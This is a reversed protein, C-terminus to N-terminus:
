NNLVLQDQDRTNFTVRKLEDELEMDQSTNDFKLGTLLLMLLPAFTLTGIFRGPVLVILLMILLPYFLKKNDLSIHANGRLFYHGFFLIFIFIGILGTSFFLMNIDSHIPRERGFYKLGFDYTDFLKVGFLMEAINKNKEHYDIIYITELYRGEDEYTDLHQIRDRKELQATLKDGYLPYSIILGAIVVCLLVAMKLLLKRNYFSYIIIAGLLMGVATRRTNILLICINILIFTIDCMKLGWSKNNNTNSLTYHIALFVIVPIIYIRSTILFGTSFAESYYGGIGAKNAYVIYLPIAILLVRNYKEFETIFSGKELGSKWENEEAFNKGIPIMMFTIILSLITRSAVVPDGSNVILLLLLYAVLLVFIADLKKFVNYKISYFIILTLPLIYRLVAYLKDEKYFGDFMDYFVFYATLLFPFPNTDYSFLLVLIIALAFLIM